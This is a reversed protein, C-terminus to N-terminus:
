GGCSLDITVHCREKEWRVGAPGNGVPTKCKLANFNVFRRPMWECRTAAYLHMVFRYLFHGTASFGLGSSLNRKFADPGIAMICAAPDFHGQLM